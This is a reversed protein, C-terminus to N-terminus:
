EEEEARLFYKLRDYLLKQFFANETLVLVSNDGALTGVVDEWGAEDIAQAVVGAAGADTVLLIQYPGAPKVARIFGTVRRFPSGDEESWSPITYHGKSRVAGLDRLDRSVSSQTAQIGREQLMEIYAGAGIAIAM